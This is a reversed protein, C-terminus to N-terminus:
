HVSPLAARIRELGELLTSAPCGFNLRAFGEGGAGFTASDNLAVRAQKLFYRHPNETVGADRFDLWALYTAEPVTTKVGPLCNTVYEVLRNRNATLYSRLALLWEDCQSYAALAAAMGM